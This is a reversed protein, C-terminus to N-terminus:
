PRSLYNCWRFVTFAIVLKLPPKTLDGNFNPGPHIIADLVPYHTWNSTRLQVMNTFPIGDIRSSDTQWRCYISYELTVLWTSYEKGSFHQSSNCLSHGFTKHSQGISSSQKIPWATRHNWCQQYLKHGTHYASVTEPSGPRIGFQSGPIAHHMKLAWDGTM